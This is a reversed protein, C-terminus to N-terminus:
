RGYKAPKEKVLAPPLETALAFELSVLRGAKDYDLILGERAVDSTAPKQCDGTASAYAEASASPEAVSQLRHGVNQFVGPLEGHHQRETMRVLNQVHSKNFEAGHPRQKQLYRVEFCNRSARFAPM